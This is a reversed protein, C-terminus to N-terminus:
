EYLVSEFVTKDGFSRLRKLSRMKEKHKKRRESKDTSEIKKSIEDSDDSKTENNEEKENIKMNEDNKGKIIDYKNNNGDGDDSLSKVEKVDIGYGSQELLKKASKQWKLLTKFDSKNLIQLDDCLRKIEDTLETGISKCLKESELDIQIKKISSLLTNPKESKKLTILIYNANPM